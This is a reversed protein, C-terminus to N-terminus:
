EWDINERGGSKLVEDYQRRLGRDRGICRYIREKPSMVSETWWVPHTLVQLCSDKRERLVDELRRHRWYGNSDSCYGVDQRFGASYANVMGAYRSGSYKMTDSTPNHFSFVSVDCGFTNELIRKEGQLCKVLSNRDSMKHCGVDFHLGIAHGLSIIERVRKMNGRDLLRYFESRLLLNYTACVGEDAEIQALVVAPELSYDVDHRWLLQGPTEDFAAFGCFRYRRRALVLLKRYNRRIFDSFHYKKENSM